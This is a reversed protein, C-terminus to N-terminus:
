PEIKHTADENEIKEMSFRPFTLWKSSIWVFLLAMVLALRFCNLINLLSKFCTRFADLRISDFCLLKSHFYKFFIKFRTGSLVIWRFILPVSISHSCNLSSLFLYVSLLILSQCIFLSSLYPVSSFKFEFASWRFGNFEDQKAANCHKRHNEKSKYLM